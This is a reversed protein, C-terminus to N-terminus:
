VLREILAGARRIEDDNIAHGLGEYRRATVDGGLAEFARASEHLREAPLRPDDEGCGLFVPTGELSGGFERDAPGLLGGSLAVLGGYRRPNRAVFESALSAGQSFGFLLTREPPVGVDGAEELASAVRDLASTLWPGAGTAESGPYWSSGAAQPALYLVGHHYLEDVLTLVNKATSGRGHLMVVAAEAARPPAGAAEIPQDRHPDDAPGPPHRPVM